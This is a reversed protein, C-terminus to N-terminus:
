ARVSRQHGGGVGFVIPLMEGIPRMWMGFKPEIWSKKRSKCHKLALSVSRRYCVCVCLLSAAFTVKSDCTVLFDCKM